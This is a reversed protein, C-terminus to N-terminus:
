FLFSKINELLCDARTKKNVIRGEEMFLVEDALRTIFEIDHSIVLVINGKDAYSQLLSCVNETNEYDMGSTPEDAILIIKNFAIGAVISVRQKEGGSLTQPHADEKDSLNLANLLLHIDDYDNNLSIEESVSSTFLQSNVDQFVMYANKM